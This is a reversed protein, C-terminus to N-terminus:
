NFGLERLLQGITELCRRIVDRFHREEKETREINNKLKNSRFTLSARNIFNFSGKIFSSAFRLKYFMFRSFGILVWWSGM